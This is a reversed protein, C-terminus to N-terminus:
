GHLPLGQRWGAAMNEAMGVFDTGRSNRNRERCADPNESFLSAALARGTMTIATTKGIRTETFEKLAHQLDNPYRVLCNKLHWADELAQCAGQGSTPLSAHAADGVLVLNDRHWVRLPDHDHVYIKNVRAAPTGSIVTQVPEPWGSFRAMLEKKYDAPNCAAVNAESAGGAWYAVKSSIPVIGFREGVGWYDVIEDINFSAHASECVGIWNLFGQYVPTNHGAVYQRSQSRMRGDAGIVLDATVQSGNRFQVSTRGNAASAIHSVVFGYNVHVGLSALRSLLIRQFDHRLISFSPYTMHKELLGIDLTGLDDNESTLRRMKRPRGTLPQMAELAGLQQLVFAANSWVVIGAGINTEATHREYIRVKFGIQALAIASSVGAVGAGLIAIEM